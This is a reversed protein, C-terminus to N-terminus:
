IMLNHFFFWVIVNIRMQWEFFYLKFSFFNRNYLIDVHVTLRVKFLNIETQKQSLHKKNLFYISYCM